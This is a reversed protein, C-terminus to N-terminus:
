SRTRSSRPTTSVVAFARCRGDVWFPLAEPKMWALMPVLGRSLSQLRGDNKIRGTYLSNSRVLWDDLVWCNESTCSFARTRCARASSIVIRTEMLFSRNRTDIQLGLIGSRDHRIPAKRDSHAPAFDKRRRTPTIRVFISPMSSNGKKGGAEEQIWDDRSLKM